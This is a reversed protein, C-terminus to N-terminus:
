NGVTVKEFHNGPWQFVYIQKRRFKVSTVTPRGDDTASIIAVERRHINSCKYFSLISSGIIDKRVVAEAAM